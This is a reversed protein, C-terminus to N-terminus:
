RQSERHVVEVLHAVAEIPTQPLVGHGLNFIHGPRNGAQELIQVAQRRLEELPALLVAPDLNGQIARQYGIRQWAVDLPTRWDVAIVDGGVAAIHELMGGTGTSFHIVPVGTAQAAQLVYRSYPAVYRAYDAPSLAGVWSDFLQVAQAGAEVQAELYRAIFHAFREMLLHWTQPEQYMLAKAHVPNRANSGEIAYTALTFPAGAFGILPLRGDLAQRALCIAQLVFNLSERPDSERLAEVDARSRLPQRIVPGEGEVFEVELGMAELPPLLDSYIIAADLDFARVPQLTIEVALEPTKVLQAMTYRERLRRYAEMYRGAQRMLWIPTCDVPERRCAKLFRDKM